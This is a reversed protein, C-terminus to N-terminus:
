KTPFKGLISRINQVVGGLFSYKEFRAVWGELERRAADIITAAHDKQSFVVSAPSYKGDAVYKPLFSRTSVEDLNGRDDKIVVYVWISRLLYRAREIRASAAAKADNWEFFRHLPSRPSHADAVIIKDTLQRHQQHLRRFRRGITVADRKKIHAGPAPRFQGARYAGALAKVVPVATRRTAM